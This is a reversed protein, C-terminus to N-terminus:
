FLAYHNMLKFSINLWLMFVVNQNLMTATCGFNATHMLVFKKLLLFFANDSKIENIKLDVKPIIKLMVHFISLSLTKKKKRWFLRNLYVYHINYACRCYAYSYILQVNFQFSNLVCEREM